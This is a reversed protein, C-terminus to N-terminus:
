TMYPDASLIRIALKESPKLGLSNFSNIPERSVLYGYRSNRKESRSAKLSAFLEENM